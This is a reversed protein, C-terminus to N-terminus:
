FLHCAVHWTAYLMGHSGIAVDCRAQMCAHMCRAPSVAVNPRHLRQAAYALQTASACWEDCGRPASCPSASASPYLVLAGPLTLLTPTGVGRRLAHMCRLADKHCSPRVATVGRAARNRRASVTSTNPGNSGCRHPSAASPRGELARQLMSCSTAHQLMDSAAVHHVANRRAAGPQVM